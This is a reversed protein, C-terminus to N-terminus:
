NIETLGKPLKVTLTKKREDFSLILDEHFPMLIEKKRPSIIKLLYQGPNQIVEEIHGILKRNKLIVKFGLISEADESSIIKEDSKTTLFVRCGAFGSVKDYTDYGEFKLKLIDGGSYESSSIFFPVPKGDIELFVSEMEPINEVFAKELKVTLAGEYGQIKLIQGLLIDANYAV